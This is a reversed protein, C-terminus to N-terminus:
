LKQQQTCAFELKHCAIRLFEPASQYLFEPASQYILPLWGERAGNEIRKVVREVLFVSVVTLTM